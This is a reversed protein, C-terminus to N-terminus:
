NIPTQMTEDTYPRPFEGDNGSIVVIGSQPATFKWYASKMSPVTYEVNPEIVTWNVDQASASLGSIVMIALLWQRQMYRGPRKKTM